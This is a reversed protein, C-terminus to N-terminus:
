QRLFRSAGHLSRRGYPTGVISDVKLATRVHISSGLISSGLHIRAAFGGALVLRHLRAKECSIVSFLIYQM